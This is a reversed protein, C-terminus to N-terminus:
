AAVLGPKCSARIMKCIVAPDTSKLLYGDAGIKLAEEVDPSAANISLMLVKIRPYHKKLERLTSLGDMVPMRMDLLVVDPKNIKLQELLDVGNCATIILHMDPIFKLVTEIGQKFVEHDDAIAIKIPIPARMRTLEAFRRIFEKAQELIEKRLRTVNIRPNLKARKILENAKINIIIAFRSLTKIFHRHDLAAQAYKVFARVYSLLFSKV